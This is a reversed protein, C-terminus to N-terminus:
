NHFYATVLLTSDYLDRIFRDFFMRNWVHFDNDWMAISVNARAPDHFLLRQNPKAGQLKGEDKCVFGPCVWEDMPLSEHSGYENWCHNHLFAAHAPFPPDSFGIEKIKRILFDEVTKCDEKAIADSRARPRHYGEIYKEIVYSELYERIVCKGLEAFDIDGRRIMSQGSFRGRLRDSLEWWDWRVGRFLEMEDDVLMELDAINPSDLALLVSAHM